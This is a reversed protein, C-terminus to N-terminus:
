KEKNKRKKKEKKKKSSKGDAPMQDDEAGNNTSAGFTYTERGNVDYRHEEVLEDEDYISRNKLTKDPYYEEFTGHKQGKKNYNESIRIAGDYFFSKFSGSKMGSKWSETRMLTGDDYYYTAEENLKGDKYTLKEIVVGLKNYVTFPGEFVGMKYNIEKNIKSDDYYLKKEGDLIGNNYHEIKTTDGDAEFYIQKGHKQGAFYNQEWALYGTSDYYYRWTGSEVGMIHSQIVQPCGSQYYTTDIGDQKGEKFAVTLRKTGNNHCLECQGTYPRNAGALNVNDNAKKIVINREKDYSLDANCDLIGVTKGCEWQAYYRQGPKVKNGNSDYKFYCSDKDNRIDKIQAFASTSFVILVLTYLLKM